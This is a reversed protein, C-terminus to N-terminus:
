FKDIAKKISDQDILSDDTLTPEEDETKQQYNSAKKKGDLTVPFPIGKERVIAKLYLTIAASMSIGLQDVVNEATKKLKGDVRLNMTTKAMKVVKKRKYKTVCNYRM